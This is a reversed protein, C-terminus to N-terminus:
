ITEMEEPSIGLVARAITLKELSPKGESDVDDDDSWVIRSQYFQIVLEPFWERFDKGYALEVNNRNLNEDDSAQKTKKKVVYVLEGDVSCVGEVSIPEKRAPWEYIINCCKSSTAPGGTMLAAKNREEQEKENKLM